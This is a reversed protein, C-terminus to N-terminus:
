RSDDSGGARTHRRGRLTAGSSEELVRRVSVSARQDGLCCHERQLGSGFPLGFARDFMLQCRRARSCQVCSLYTWRISVSLGGWRPLFPPTNGPTVFTQKQVKNVIHMAPLVTIAGSGFAADLYVWTTPRCARRKSVYALLFAGSLDGVECLSALLPEVSAGAYVCDACVVVDYGSGGASNRGALLHQVDTGWEYEVVDVTGTREGAPCVRLVAEPNMFPPRFSTSHLGLGLGLM